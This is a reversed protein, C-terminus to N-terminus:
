QQEACSLGHARWGRRGFTDAQVPEGHWRTHTSRHLLPRAAHNAGGDRLATSKRWPNGGAQAQCITPAEKDLRNSREWIRLRCREVAALATHDGSQRIVDGNGPQLPRKVFAVLTPDHEHEVLDHAIM